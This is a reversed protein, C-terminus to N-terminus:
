SASAFSPRMKSLFRKYLLIRSILFICLKFNLLGILQKNPRNRGHSLDVKVPIHGRYCERIRVDKHRELRSPVEIHGFNNVTKSQNDTM